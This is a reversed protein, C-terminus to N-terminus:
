SVAGAVLREFRVNGRLPDFAPDISLWGPSLDYPIRLLPELLDLAKTPEGVLLYIRVLQHQLYPTLVADPFPLLALGLEGERIADAKLGLYAFSLGM